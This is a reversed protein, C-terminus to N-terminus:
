TKEMMRRGLADFLGGLLKKVPGLDADYYYDSTLWGKDHYYRYDCDDGTLTKVGSRSIRFLILRFLSPSRVPGTLGKYFRAAAKGIVTDNSKRAAETLPELGKLVCGRTVGFGLNEGVGSLYKVISRGGFFGQTVISTFTKGFYRPRHFMFALRDLMNKMPASLQFSYNPTAFVVGDSRELKEILLDRDDRMPCYGEGKTFCLKCGRCYELRYDKLFVVDFDIDGHLKLNNEFERVAEYTVGQRYSGIFATVKKM